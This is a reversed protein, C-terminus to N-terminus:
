TSKNYMHQPISSIRVMRTMEDKTIEGAVYKGFISQGLDSLEGISAQTLYKEIEICTRRVFDVFRRKQDSTMEQKQAHLYIALKGHTQQFWSMDPMEMHIKEGCVEFRANVFDVMKGFYPLEEQIKKFLDKPEYLKLESKSLGRKGLTLLALYQFCIREICLRLELTAYFVGRLDTAKDLLEKCRFWHSEADIKYNMDIQMLKM